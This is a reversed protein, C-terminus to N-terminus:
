RKGWEWIGFAVSKDVPHGAQKLILMVQGRHHSEHSILYSLFSANSPKFGPMRKGKEELSSITRAIAECSADLSRLLLEKDVADKKELKQLSSHVEKDAEKLWMLRVNHMHVFQEGVARGKSTSLCALQPEPIAELLYGTIRCHIRWADLLDEKM